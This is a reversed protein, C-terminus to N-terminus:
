IVILFRLSICYLDGIMLIGFLLHFLLHDTIGQLYEPQGLTLKLVLSLHLLIIFLEILHAVESLAFEIPDGLRSVIVYIM